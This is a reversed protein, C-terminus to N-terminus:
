MRSAEDVSELFRGIYEEIAGAEVMRFIGQFNVYKFPPTHHLGMLLQSLTITIILRNRSDRIHVLFRNNSDPPLETIATCGRKTGCKLFAIAVCVHSSPHMAEALEMLQQTEEGDELLWRCDSGDFKPGNGSVNNLPLRRLDLQSYRRAQSSSSSSSSSSSIARAEVELLAMIHNYAPRLWDEIQHLTVFDVLLQQQHSQARAAEPSADRRDPHLLLKLTRLMQHMDDDVTTAIHYPDLGLHNFIQGPGLDPRRGPPM